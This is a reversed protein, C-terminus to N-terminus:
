WSTVSFTNGSTESDPQRACQRQNEALGGNLEGRNRRRCKATTSSACQGTPFMADVVMGDVLTRADSGSSGNASMQGGHWMTSSGGVDFGGTTVAPISNAMLMYQRGTPLADLLDKSVVERRQSTQVDVVPSEGTVTVTETLSGVRMDVSIPATFNAELVIGERVVTNFGNLTFTVKYIGPRLDVVRYQGAENTMATKVREILAPSSAEVTVGPLVAGTTDKVAGAIASQALSVSPLALFGLAVVILLRLRTSM